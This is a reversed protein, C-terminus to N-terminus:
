KNSIAFFITSAQLLAMKLDESSVQVSLKSSPMASATFTTFLMPIYFPSRNFDQCPSDMLYQSYVEEKDDSPIELLLLLLGSPSTM